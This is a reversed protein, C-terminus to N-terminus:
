LATSPKFDQFARLGQDVFRQVAAVFPEVAEFHIWHGAHPIMELQSHPFHQLLLDQDHDLRYESNAGGLFLTEGDHRAPLPPHYAAAEQQYAQLVPLNVRWHYSGDERRVLNTLVFQRVMPIAIKKSLLEDAQQRSTIRPLDLGAMAPLIEESSSRYGRPAIDEIILGHLREPYHWAFEMAAMGGMSHGLLYARALQQQDFFAKVDERLDELTHTPTHPSQGHNRQDVVLVRHKEGLVNAVRQWNQSSGLLGHLIVLTKDGHGYERAHLRLNHM